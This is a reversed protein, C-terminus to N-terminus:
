TLGRSDAATLDITNTNPALNIFRQVVPGTLLAGDRAKAIPVTITQAGARPLLDGQWGSVLSVHGYESGSPAGNGRNPVLYFLVGSSKSMDVPKSLSFTASSEVM